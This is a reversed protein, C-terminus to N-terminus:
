LWDSVVSQSISRGKQWRHSTCRCSFVEMGRGEACPGRAEVKIKPGARRTSGGQTDTGPGPSFSRLCCQSAGALLCLGVASPDTHLARLPLSLGSTAASRAREKRHSDRGGDQRTHPSLLGQGSTRTLKSLRPGGGTDAFAPPQLSPLCQPPSGSGEVTAGQKEPTRPQKLSGGRQPAGERQGTLDPNRKVASLLVKGPDARWVGRRLAWDGRRRSVWLEAQAHLAAASVRRTPSAKEQKAPWRSRGRQGGSVGRGSWSTERRLAKELHLSKKEGETVQRPQQDRGIKKEKKEGKKQRVRNHPSKEQSERHRLDEALTWSTM